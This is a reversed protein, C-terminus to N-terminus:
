AHVDADELEDVAADVEAREEEPTEETIENVANELEAERAALASRQEDLEAKRTELKELETRKAAIKRSLLLQKLAM